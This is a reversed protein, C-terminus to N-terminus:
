SALSLENSSSIKQYIEDKLLVCNELNYRDRLLEVAGKALHARLVTDASLEIMAKAFADADDRIIIDKGNTVGLGECGKTTSLVPIGNSMAELIKVRVGGGSLLPVFLMHTKRLMDDLSEIFGHVFVSEDDAIARLEAPPADGLFHLKINNKKLKDRIKPFIEKAFWVVAEANPYWWFGGMWLFNVEDEPKKHSIDPKIPLCLPLHVKITPASCRDMDRQSIFTIAEFNWKNDAEVRKANQRSQRAVFEVAKRKWGSLHQPIWFPFIDTEINHSVLVAPVNSIFKKFFALHSSHIEMLDIKQDKVIRRANNVAEASFYSADIFPLGHYIHELSHKIQGYLNKESPAKARAEIHVTKFYRSYIEHHKNIHKTEDEGGITFLHLNYKEALPALTNMIYIPAGSSAPLPPSLTFVLVNKKGAINDLSM